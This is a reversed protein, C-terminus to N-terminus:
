WNYTQDAYADAVGASRAIDVISREFSQMREPHLAFIMCGHFEDHRAHVSLNGEVHGRLRGTLEWTGDGRTRYDDWLGLDNLARIIARAADADINGYHRSLRIKKSL